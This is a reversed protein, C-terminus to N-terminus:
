ELASKGDRLITELWRRKQRQEAIFTCMETEYGLVNSIASSIQAWDTKSPLSIFLVISSSGLLTRTKPFATMQARLLKYKSYQSSDELTIILNQNLGIGEVSIYPHLITKRLDGIRRRLTRSSPPEIGYDVFFERVKSSTTFYDNELCAGIVKMETSSLYPSSQRIAHTVPLIDVFQKSAEIAAQFRFGSDFQWSGEEFFGMNLHDSIYEAYDQFITLDYPHKEFLRMKKLFAAREEGGPVLVEFVVKNEMSLSVTATRITCTYPYRELWEILKDLAQINTRTSAWGFVLSFGIAGYDLNGSVRLSHNSELEKWIQNVASRTINLSRALDMQRFSPNIALRSLIRASGRSLIVM